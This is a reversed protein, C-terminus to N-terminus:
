RGDEAARTGEGFVTGEIGRLRVDSALEDTVDFEFTAGMEVNFLKDDRYLAPSFRNTGAPVLDFVLEDGPHIPFPLRGRLLGDEEFVDLEGTTPWGLGEMMEMDYSGVFIAREEAALQVPKTPQVVIELPVATDGWQMQLLTADGTVAPFSWTLAEIHPGQKPAVALHIQEATSDPVQFHFLEDNPDLFVGWEGERPTMWVSYKGAPVDVGNLRIDKDVDLTTAWNAGTWPVGFPVLDGFLMRGRAAPRSYEVTITTGDVTQAVVADESGRIQAAIPDPVAISSMAAVAVLAIRHTM